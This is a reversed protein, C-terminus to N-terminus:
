FATYEPNDKIFLQIASLLREPTRVNNQECRKIYIHDTEGALIPACPVHASNPRAFSGYEILSKVSGVLFLLTDGRFKV